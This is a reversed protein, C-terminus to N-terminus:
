TAIIKGVIKLKVKEMVDCRKRKKCGNSGSGTSAKLFANMKMQNKNNEEDEEEAKWEVKAVGDEKMAAKAPGWSFRVLDPYGFVPNAFNKELWEKCKPDSPYGSGFDKGNVPEFDPETWKWNELICDRSVKAIVSAASCPAYKADAKKEVVFRIGHGVFERELKLKYSEPIGVTDVFCTNIRVGSDLVAHIMQIASDHSMANLNYPKARLMNRSIESAHLVRLVFGINHNSQIEDFLKNRTM